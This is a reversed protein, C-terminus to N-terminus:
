SSIQLNKEMKGVTGRHTHFALEPPLEALDISLGRCDSRRDLPTDDADLV